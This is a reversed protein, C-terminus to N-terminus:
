EHSAERNKIYSMNCFATRKTVYESYGGETYAYVGAYPVIWKPPWLGVDFILLTVRYAFWCILWEIKTM